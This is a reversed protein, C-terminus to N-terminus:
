WDHFVRVLPDQECFRKWALRDRVYQYLALPGYVSGVTRTTGERIAQLLDAASKGPFLTAARGVASHFHSDSGGVEPRRLHRRNVWQTLFNNLTETPNANRVEVADVLRGVVPDAILGKIGKLEKLFPLYAYPHAAVALGGQAHIAEITERAPMGKPVERRINLAVIHGDASSIEAGAIIELEGDDHHSAFFELATWAGVLTDHDTVAIVRLKPEPMQMQALLVANVVAQPSMTGDSATTHMHLDALSAAM